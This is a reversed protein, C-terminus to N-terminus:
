GCSSGALQGPTPLSAAASLPGAASRLLVPCLMTHGASHLPQQQVRLAPGVLPGVAGVPPRNHQYLGDPNQRNPRTSAGAGV